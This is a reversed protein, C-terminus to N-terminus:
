IRYIERSLWVRVHSQLIDHTLFQILLQVRYHERSTIIWGHWQSFAPKATPQQHFPGSAIITILHWWTTDLQSIITILYQLEQCLWLHQDQTWSSEQIVNSIRSIMLVNLGLCSPRWKGSSMQLHMKKFSFIHIEILIENFKTGLPGILLIGVNNWIIAQPRGPSLGNDSGIITLKGVCIHTM